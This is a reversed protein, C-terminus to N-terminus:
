NRHREEHYKASIIYKYTDSDDIDFQEYFQERSLLTITKNLSFDYYRDVFDGFGDVTPIFLYDWSETEFNPYLQVTFPETILIRKLSVEGVARVLALPLESILKQTAKKHNLVAYYVVGDIHEVIAIAYEENLKKSVFVRYLNILYTKFDQVEEAAGERVSTGINRFYDEGFLGKFFGELIPKAVFTLFFIELTTVLDIAGSRNGWKEIKVDGYEQTLTIIQNIEEQSLKTREGYKIQIKM